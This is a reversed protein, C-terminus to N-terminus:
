NSCHCICTTPRCMKCCVEQIVKQDKYAPFQITLGGVSGALTAASKEPAAINDLRTGYLLSYRSVVVITLNLRMFKPLLLLEALFNTKENATKRASWTLLREAHDVVLVAARQSGVGFFRQLSRGFAAVASHSTEPSNNVHEDSGLTATNSSTAKNGPAKKNGATTASISSTPATIKAARRPQFRPQQKEEMTEVDHHKDTGVDDTKSIGTSDAIAAADGLSKPSTTGHRKPSHALKPTAHHRRHRQRRDRRSLSTPKLQRYADAVLRDISAPETTACNVYSTHLSPMAGSTQQLNDAQLMQLVDKVTSTKGTGRPGSLFIPGPIHVSSPTMENSQITRCAGVSGHLLATLRRIQGERYPYEKMLSQLRQSLPVVVSPSDDPATKARLMGYLPQAQDDNDMADPSIKRRKRRVPKSKLERPVMGQYKEHLSELFLANRRQNQLMREHLSLGGEEEEDDDSSSSTADTSVSGDSSLLEDESSYSENDEDDDEMDNTATFDHDDPSEKMPSDDMQTLAAAVANRAVDADMPFSSSDVSDSSSSKESFDPMHFSPIPAKKKGSSSEQAHHSPMRNGVSNEDAMNFDIFKIDGYCDLKQTTEM